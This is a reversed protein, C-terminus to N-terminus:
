PGRPDHRKIANFIDIHHAMIKEINAPSEYLHTLTEKIGLFLFDYFSRMMQIQVPNQTAYAIAMHFSVDAETGLQGSMTKDRMEEISKELFELDKDIARRAAWAAANCELGLRVELLDKLSVDGPM